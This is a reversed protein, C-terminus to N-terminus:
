KSGYGESELEKRMRTMMRKTYEDAAYAQTTSLFGRNDFYHLALAYIYLEYKANDREELLDVPIGSERAHDRAARLCLEAVASEGDEEAADPFIRGYDLFGKLSVM